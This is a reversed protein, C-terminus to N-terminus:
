EIFPPNNLTAMLEQRSVVATGFKSVAIGAALNALKLSELPDAGIASFYALASVVTDGAGTVDYVSRAQAHLHYCGGDRQLLTMGQKGRTILVAQFHHGALIEKAAREVEDDTTCRMRTAEAAEKANPVILTARQYKAFDWGKPAVLIKIDPGASGVLEKLLKPTLVGKAYDSIILIDGRDLKAALYTLLAGATKESIPLTVEQDIRVMQQDHAIIRTKTTTVRGPDAVVGEIRVGLQRAEECLVRGNHDDGIVGVLDVDAGLAALNHAVNAAGGLKFEEKDFRVVPVPAEPSLRDAEGLLYKDLILDGLVM